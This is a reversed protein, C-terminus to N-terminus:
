QRLIADEVNSEKPLKKELQHFFGLGQHYLNITLQNNVVASNREPKILQSQLEEKPDNPLKPPLEYYAISSNYDNAFRQIIRKHEHDQIQERMLKDKFKVVTQKVEQESNNGSPKLWASCLAYSLSDENPAGNPIIHYEYLLKDLYTEQFKKQQERKEQAIGTEFVRVENSGEKNSSSIEPPYLSFTGREDRYLLICNSNLEASLDEMLRYAEELLCMTHFLCLYEVLLEEIHKRQETHPSDLNNKFENFLEEDLGYKHLYITRYKDFNPFKLIQRRYVGTKTTSNAPIYSLYSTEREPVIQVGKQRITIATKATWELSTIHNPPYDLMDFLNVLILDVTGVYPYEAHGQNNWRPHLTKQKFDDDELTTASCNNDHYHKTGFGYHLAHYPHDATSVLVNKDTNIGLTILEESKSILETKKALNSFFQNYDSTYDTQFALLPNNYLYDKYYIPGMQRLAQLRLQLEKAEATLKQLDPKKEKSYTSYDYIARSFLPMISPDFKRDNKRSTSDWSDMRHHTGRYQAIFFQYPKNKQASKFLELRDKLYVKNDSHRNLDDILRTLDISVKRLYEAEFKKVVARRIEDSRDKIERASNKYSGLKFISFERGQRTTKRLMEKRLDTKDFLNVVFKKLSRKHIFSETKFREEADNDSNDSPDPAFFDKTEKEDQYLIHHAKKAFEEPPLTSTLQKSADLLCLKKRNSELEDDEGARKRKYQTMYTSLLPRVINLMIGHLLEYADSHHEACDIPRRHNNDLEEILSRDQDLIYQIIQPKNLRAAMHLATEGKDNRFRLIDHLSVTDKILKKYNTIVFKWCNLSVAYAKDQIFISKSDKTNIFFSIELMKYELLTALIDPDDREWALESYHRKKENTWISPVEYTPSRTTKHIDYYIYFLQSVQKPTAFHIVDEFVSNRNHDIYWFRVLRAEGSIAHYLSIYADLAEGRLYHTLKRGNNDLLKFLTLGHTNFYRHILNKNENCGSLFLLKAAFVQEPNLSIEERPDKHQTLNKYQTLNEAAQIIIKNNKDNKQGWFKITEIKKSFYGTANEDIEKLQELSANKLLWKEISIGAIQLQLIDEMSHYNCIKQLTKLLSIIVNKNNHKIALIFTKGNDIALWTLFENTEDSHLSLYHKEIEGLLTKICEVEGSMILQLLTYQKDNNSLHHNPLYSLWSKKQPSLHKIIFDLEIKTLLDKKNTIGILINEKLEDIQKFHHQEFLSIIYEAQTLTNLAHIGKKNDVMKNLWRYLYDPFDNKKDSKEFDNKINECLINLLIENADKSFIIKLASSSKLIYNIRAAPLFKKWLTTELLFKFIEYDQINKELLELSLVSETANQWEPQKIQLLLELTKVKPFYFNRRKTKTTKTCVNNFLVDFIETLSKDQIIQEQNSFIILKKEHILNILFKLAETWEAYIMLFNTFINIDVQTDNITPFLKNTLFEPFQNDNAYSISAKNCNILLTEFGLNDIQISNKVLKDAYDLNIVPDHSILQWLDTGILSILNDDAFIRSLIISRFTMHENLESNSTELVLSMNLSPTLCYDILLNLIEETMSTKKLLIKKFINAPCFFRNQAINKLLEIGINASNILIKAAEWFQEQDKKSYGSENNVLTILQKEIFESTLKTEKKELQSLLWTLYLSKSIILNHQELWIIIKENVESKFLIKQLVESNLKEKAALLLDLNRTLRENKKLQLQLYFYNIFTVLLNNDQKIKEWFVPQDFNISTNKKYLALLHLYKEKEIALDYLTKNNKNPDKIGEETHLIIKEWLELYLNESSHILFAHALLNKTKANPFACVKIKVSKPLASFWFELITFAKKKILEYAFYFDEPRFDDEKYPNDQFIKRFSQTVYSDNKTQSLISQQWVHPQTM